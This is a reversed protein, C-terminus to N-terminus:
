RYNSYDFPLENVRLFEDLYIFAGSQGILTIAYLGRAYPSATVLILQEPCQTEPDIIFDVGILTSLDKRAAEAGNQSFLVLPPQIQIERIIPKRPKSFLLRFLYIIPDTIPTLRSM